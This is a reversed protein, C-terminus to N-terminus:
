HGFGLAVVPGRAHGQTCELCVLCEHTPGEFLNYTIMNTCGQTQKRSKLFFFFFPQSKLVFQPSVFCSM